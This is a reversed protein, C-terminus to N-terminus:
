PSYAQRFRATILDQHPSQQTLRGVAGALEADNKKIIDTIKTHTTVPGDPQYYGQPIKGLNTGSRNPDVRWDTRHLGNPM